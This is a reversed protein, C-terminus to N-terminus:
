YWEDEEDDEDESEFGEVGFLGLLEPAELVMMEISAVLEKKSQRSIQKLWTDLDFFSQPNTKWTELVAHVHKCPVIESPCTCDGKLRTADPAVITHYVGYNGHIRASVKTGRRMRCTLLPSDVYEAVRSEFPDKHWAM